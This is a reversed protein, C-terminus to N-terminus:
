KVHLWSESVRLAKSVERISEGRALRTCARAVIEPPYAKGRINGTHIDRQMMDLGSWQRTRTESPHHVSRLLLSTTTEEEKPQTGSDVEM